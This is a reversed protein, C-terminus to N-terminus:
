QGQAKKSLLNVRAIVQALTANDPLPAIGDFASLAVKGNEMSLGRGVDDDSLGGQANRRIRPDASGLKTSHSSSGSRGQPTPM